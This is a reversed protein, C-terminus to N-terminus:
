GNAKELKILERAYQEPTIGLKKSLQVQSPTLRVKNPSTSRTAPAVVSSPKPKPEEQFYEGFRRRMTKDLTDYYEDSGVEVGNNKLKEHLGLAAATMEEDEGFWKNRKQWALAKKDPEPATQPQKTEQIRQVVDEEDQLPAPKLGKARLLELNALQLDNQAEVLADPDGAEYAEKYARKAAEVKLTGAQVATNIYVEEGSNYAGKIRKNEEYLRKAVEVAEQREREASEKARREDHWVKKLQSMREKVAGDYADLEDHELDEVIHEPMPTRGKDEIPTDDEIEIEFEDNLDETSM